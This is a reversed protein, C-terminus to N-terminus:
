PVHFHAGAPFRRSLRWQRRSTGRWGRVRGSRCPALTTAAERGCAIGDPLRHGTEIRVRRPTPHVRHMIPAQKWPASSTPRRGELSLRCIATARHGADRHLRQHHNGPPREDESNAAVGGGEGGPGGPAAARLSRRQELPRAAARRPTESRRRASAEERKGGGIGHLARGLTVTDCDPGFPGLVYHACQVLLRRLHPDGRKSIGLQTRRSGSDRRRTVLGLYAAVDRSRAFRGPHEITLVYTLATIAGVGTVQRLAATEPYEECLAAIERDTAAIRANLEGIVEILPLLATRLEGPIHEAAKRHFAPATSGPLAAGWAKVAGRVHNILQTRSRVLADRSRVVALDQRARAGRHRISALLEPDLRGLRGLRALLEADIRDDKRHSRAILAVQRVNAVIVEHGLEALLRSLWPSRPGAELVVRSAALEGLAQRLALATSRVRQERVVRAEPDLVCVQIHRDDVDLGVTLAPAEQRGSSQATAIHQQM